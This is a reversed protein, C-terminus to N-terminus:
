PLDIPPITSRSGREAGRPAADSTPPAASGAARRHRRAAEELPAGEAWAALLPAFTACPVRGAELPALWAEPGDGELVALAGDGREFVLSRAGFEQLGELVADLTWFSPFLRRAGAERVLLLAPAELVGRLHAQAEYRDMEPFRELNADLATALGRRAADARARACAEATPGGRFSGLDLVLLRYEGLDVEAMTERPLHRDAGPYEVPTPGGLRLGTPLQDHVRLHRTGVGRRVLARQARRGLPDDGVSGSLDVALGEDALATATSALPGLGDDVPSFREAIGLDAPDAALDLFVRGVALVGPTRPPAPTPSPAQGPAPPGSGTSM